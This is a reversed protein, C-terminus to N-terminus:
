PASLPLRVEILKNRRRRQTDIVNGVNGGTVPTTTRSTRGYIVLALGGTDLGAWLANAAGVVTNQAATTIRGNGITGVALPPLYFRGQGARTALSTKWTVTVACQYPMMEGAATGPLDLDDALRSVQKGTTPDLSATAAETVHVHSSVVQDLKGTWFSGVAAVFAAQASALTGSGTSHLNISWSEGPTTGSISHHFTPM